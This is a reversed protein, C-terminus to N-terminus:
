ATYSVQCTSGLARLWTNLIKCLKEDDVNDGSIEVNVDTDHNDTYSRFSMGVNNRDSEM